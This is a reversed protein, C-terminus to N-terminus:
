KSCGVALPLCGEIFALTSNSTTRRPSKAQRTWEHRASMSSFRAATARVFAAKSDRVTSDRDDNGSSGKARRLAIASCSRSLGSARNRSATALSAPAAGETDGAPSL